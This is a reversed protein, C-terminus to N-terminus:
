RSSLASSVGDSAKASAARSVRRMPSWTSTMSRLTIAAIMVLSRASTDVLALSLPRHLDNGEGDIELVHAIDDVLIQALEGGLLDLAPKLERRFAGFFQRCEVLSGHVRKPDREADEHRAVDIFRALKERLLRQQAIGLEGGGFPMEVAQALATGFRDFGGRQMEVHQAVQPSNVRM